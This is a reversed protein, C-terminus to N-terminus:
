KAILDMKNFLEKELLRFAQMNPHPDVSDLDVSFEPKLKGEQDTLTGFLEIKIVDAEQASYEDVWTNYKYRLEQGYVGPKLAPLSNPLLLKMNMNKAFNHVKKALSSMKQFRENVNEPSTLSKDGFDVFCFKFLVANYERGNIQNVLTRFMEQGYEVGPKDVNKRPSSLRIYEFYFDGRQYQNYPIPWPKYVSISNLVKPINWYRFWMDMVSRGAMAVTYKDKSSYTLKPLYVVSITILAVIIIVGSLGLFFSKSTAM